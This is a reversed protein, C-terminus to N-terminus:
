GLNADYSADEGLTPKEAITTGSEVRNRGRNKALYLSRDAARILKDENWSVDMLEAAGFSATCSLDTGQWPVSLAEVDARLREGVELAGELDTEPLVILFEEGGYRAVWDINGRVSGRLTAAVEKLLADGAPHGFTDNFAKFHDVDCILVSLPHGYRRARELEAPMRDNMFQRNYTETLADTISLRQIERHAEMLKQHERTLSDHTRGRAYEAAFVLSGLVLYAITFRLLDSGAVNLGGPLAQSVFVTALLLAGSISGVVRGLSFTVIPTFLYLWTLAHARTGATVVIYSFDLFTLGLMATYLLRTRRSRVLLVAFSILTLLFLVDAIGDRPNGGALDSIAMWILVPIGIGTIVLLFLRQRVDDLSELESQGTLRILHGSFRRVLRDLGPAQDPVVSDRFRRSPKM